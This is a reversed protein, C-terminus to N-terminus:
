DLLPNVNIYEMCWLGRRQVSFSLHEVFQPVHARGRGELRRSRRQQLLMGKVRRRRGGELCCMM